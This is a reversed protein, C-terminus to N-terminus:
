PIQYLVEIQRDARLDTQLLISSGEVVAGAPAQLVSANGPLRVRITIPVALTGPQKQVKLRYLWQGSEPGAQVVDAPLLFEFLTIRYDSAPVVQMTGFGQVGDIGEDLVDVQAPPSKELIM